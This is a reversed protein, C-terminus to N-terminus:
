ERLAKGTIKLFVDGLDKCGTYKKLLASPSGTEVILGDDIIGIRSCLEQAEDMYHTTYLITTGTHNLETLYEFILNRSQADVGVTPEDLILLNPSHVMGAALNARRKIGGSCRNIRKKANQELQLHYLLHEVREKLRIGFIAHMQGFYEINEQVTLSPFLAIEQPVLGTKFHKNNNSSPINQQNILVRGDNFKLLGNIVSILTTKGAANPGLLGYFEGQEILLDIGKLTEAKNSKYRKHLGSIEIATQKNEM